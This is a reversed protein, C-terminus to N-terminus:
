STLAPRPTTADQRRDRRALSATDSAVASPRDRGLRGPAPDAPLRPRGAGGLDAGPSDRRGRAGPQAAGGGPQRPDGGAVDAPARQAVAGASAVGGSPHGVPLSRVPIGDPGSTGTWETPERVYADNANQIRAERLTLLEFESRVGPSVVPLVQAGWGSGVAALRRLWEPPVPWSSFRRRDTRRREIAGLLAKQEPSVRSPRLRAVALLETHLPDPFRTVRARWRARCGRGAPPAARCACELVADIATLSVPFGQTGCCADPDGQQALLPWPGAPWPGDRRSRPSPRLCDRTM